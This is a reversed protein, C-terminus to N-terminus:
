IFLVQIRQSLPEDLLFVHINEVTQIAIYQLKGSPFGVPYGTKEVAIEVSFGHSGGDIWLQVSVSAIFLWARHM